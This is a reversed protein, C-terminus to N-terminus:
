WLRVAIHETEREVSVLEYSGHHRLAKFLVICLALLESLRAKRGTHLIGKSRRNIRAPLISEWFALTERWSELTAEVAPLAIPIYWGRMKHRKIHLLLILAPRKNWM